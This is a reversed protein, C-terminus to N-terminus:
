GYNFYVTLTIGLLLCYWAFIVLKKRKLLKLLLTLATLGVVFSTSFGILYNIAAINGNAITVLKHLKILTGGAIAPIAMLFSFRAARLSSWGCMRAASITAGSRSVGPFLALLQFTGIFLVDISHRKFSFTEDNENHSFKEGLFLIIATIIFFIGLLGPMDFVKEIDDLFPYSIFLPILSLGILYLDQHKTRLIDIIDQWFVIVIAFLTGLHCVLDFAIYDQLNQYGLFIQTLKLHGSSSIPFFETIGQVIGLILAELLSVCANGTSLMLLFLPRGIPISGVAGPVVIWHELWQAVVAM